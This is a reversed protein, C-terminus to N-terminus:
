EWQFRICQEKTDVQAPISFPVICRPRAHGVNLNYVIPLEPKDIVLRLIKPIEEAFLNNIPKGVLVGSVVEFIGTSKLWQLMHIFRLPSQCEESSELLLIKDKWEELSPFLQYKDNIESMNPYRVNMHLEYMSDICGGLIKGEFYSSGQLLHFGSDPHSPTQTGLQDDGFAPREEYWLPSPRIEKIKKTEILERFYSESYPLMENGLDCLDALFSQGYFSPLGLKYLMFHNITTDSFGLFIKPSIVKKLADNEFLFPALRFTDDGGIACLIMDVEPDAFTSLLDAARDEPHHQLHLLGKLANPSFKVHLGMNELRKLGLPLSHSVLSDGLIGSSLSVICVTKIM